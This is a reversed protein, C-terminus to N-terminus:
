PQAVAKVKFTQFGEGMLRITYNGDVIPTLSFVPNQNHRGANIAIVGSFSLTASEGPQLTVSSFDRDDDHEQDGGFVPVLSTGSVKFPITDPHVKASDM